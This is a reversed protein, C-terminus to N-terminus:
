VIDDSLLGKKYSILPVKSMKDKWGEIIPTIFKWQAEVEDTSAFLTQDGVIADLLVRKYADSIEANSENYLFSLTKEELALGFGPVKFWFHLNIGEDPQIRFTLQNTGGFDENKSPVTCDPRKFFVRIAVEDRDLAKGSELIFPVGKWYDTDIEAKIKFYTETQSNKDVGVEDTYGSYQGRIVSGKEESIKLKKLIDLRSKRIDTSNWNTPRDMAILSLMQLIHNQGVDRLAGLSDYFEGRGNIGDSEYLTIDIREINESTWAPTFIPNSFRFTLINQVTEKALYHDIRFVQEEHFMEGLKKDLSKATEVDRGFPKEILVRSWGDTDSCPISLGTQYINELITLYTSPPTALHFLKNGCEKFYNIEVENIIKSLIIYSNKDEFVGEAFRAGVLFGKILSEDEGKEKLTSLVFDQFEVDSWNRRSFGILCFKEPLLNKKYLDFVSPLLKRRSLDGTVGFIVFCTPAIKM